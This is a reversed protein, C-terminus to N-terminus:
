LKGAAKLALYADAVAPAFHDPDASLVEAGAHRLRLVTAGRELSFRTAAAAGYLDSAGVRLASIEALEPDDVSAVLVQHKRIIPALSRLMGAEVSAPDVTTLLLVLARQSTHAQIAAVAGAWDMELLRPELPALRDALLPILASGTAGAVRERVRRDFAVVQVRDGAHSALAALLLTAELSADLRPAEGVRVASTRSTDLLIFVHRDREPRWTRVAVDARRATARWDISRVDDGIVYERLSDFESGPGRIQVAARGDLERLRALRSPLHRRSAFEPLVRLRAPVAISLQRGALGLPGLLRLTVPGATRDGRRTPCLETTFLRREGPPIDLRHRDSVAGASPPWADRVIGRARRKGLNIIALTTATSQTLRVSPPVDRAVAVSRPSPAVAVDLLALLAVLFFWPLAVNGGSSTAALPVAMGVAAVARWTIFM